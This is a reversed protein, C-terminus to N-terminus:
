KKWVRPLQSRDDPYFIPIRESYEFGAFVYHEKNYSIFLKKNLVCWDDVTYVFYPSYTGIMGKPNESQESFQFGIRYIFEPRGDGDLDTLRFPYEVDIHRQSQDLALRVRNNEINVICFNSGDGVEDPSGFLLLVTQSKWRSLLLRSTPLENLKADEFSGDISTWPYKTRFTKTEYGALAVTLVNYSDTDTTSTFLRLTDPISDDNLNATFYVIQKLGGPGAWVTDKPPGSYFVSESRSSSTAVLAKATDAAKKSRAPSGHSGMAGPSASSDAAGSLPRPAHGCSCLGAM